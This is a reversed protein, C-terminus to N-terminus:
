SRDPRRTSRLKDRRLRFRLVRTPRDFGTSSTGHPCM